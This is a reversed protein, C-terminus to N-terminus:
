LLEYLLILCRKNVMKSCGSVENLILNHSLFAGLLLFKDTLYFHKFLVGVKLLHTVIPFVNFGLATIEVSYAEEVKMLLALAHIRVFKSNSPHQEGKVLLLVKFSSECFYQAVPVEQHHIAHMIRVHPLTLRLQKLNNPTELGFLNIVLASDKFLEFVVNM